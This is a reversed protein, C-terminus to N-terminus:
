GMTVEGLAHARQLAEPIDDSGLAEVIVKECARRLVDADKIELYDANEAGLLELTSWATTPSLSETVSGTYLFRLLVRLAEKPIDPRVHKLEVIGTKAESMTHEFAKRFFASRAILFSRHAFVTTSGVIGM